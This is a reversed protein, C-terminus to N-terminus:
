YEKTTITIKKSTFENLKKECEELGEKYSNESYYNILGELILAKNSLKRAGNKCNEM